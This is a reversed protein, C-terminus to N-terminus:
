SSSQQALRNEVQFANAEGALTLWQLLENMSCVEEVQEDVFWQLFSRSAYDSEQDALAVLENIQRTVTLESAVAAEIISKASPYDTEAKPIPGLSVTAGVDQVYKVIKLAHAREEEAQKFFHKAFVRLGMKDFACSMGLYKHAATLEHSVQECLKQNMKASIM